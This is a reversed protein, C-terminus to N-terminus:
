EMEHRRVFDLLARDIVSNLASRQTGDRDALNSDGGTLQSLAAAAAGFV